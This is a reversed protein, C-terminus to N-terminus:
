PIEKAAETERRPARLDVTKTAARSLDLHRADPSENM